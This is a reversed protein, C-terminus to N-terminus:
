FFLTVFCSVIMCVYLQFILPLYPPVGSILLTDYNFVFLDKAPVYHETTNREEKLFLPPNNGFM